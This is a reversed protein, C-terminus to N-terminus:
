QRRMTGSAGSFNLYVKKGPTINHNIVDGDWMAAPFTHQIGVKTASTMVRFKAEAATYAKWATDASIDITQSKGTLVVDKTPNPAMGQVPVLSGKGDSVMEIGPTAAQSLREEIISIAAIVALLGFIIYRM